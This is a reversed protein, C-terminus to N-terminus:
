LSRDRVAAVKENMIWNFTWVFDDATVPYGDSFRADSRVTFTMTVPVPLKPDKLVEERKRGKAVEDDIFKQYAAVKDDIKPLSTALSPAWELTEPDLGLLTELVLEHVRYAYRDTSIFPTLKAIGGMATDVCWDGEAYGPMAHAAKQRAFPDNKDYDAPNTSAYSTTPTGTSPRTGIVNVGRAVADKLDRIDRSQDSLQAKITKVDNWQRDYQMMALVVAGILLALLVFLIFDKVSFRNEMIGRVYHGSM